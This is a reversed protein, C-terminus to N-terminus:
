NSMLYFGRPFEAIASRMKRGYSKMQYFCPEIPSLDPSYAPLFIVRVGFIQLTAIKIENHHIRANDLVLASNPGPYPTMKPLVDNFIFDWFKLLLGWQWPNRIEEVKGERSEKKKSGFFL